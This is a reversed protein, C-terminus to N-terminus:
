SPSKAQLLRKKEEELKRALEKRVEGIMADATELAFRINHALGFLASYDMESLYAGEINPLSFCVTEILQWSRRTGSAVWMGRMLRAYVTAAVMEPDGDGPANYTLCFSRSM